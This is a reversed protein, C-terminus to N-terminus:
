NSGIIEQIAFWHKKSKELEEQPIYIRQKHYNELLSEIQRASSEYLSVCHSKKNIQDYFRFTKEPHEAACIVSKNFMCAVVGVHLKCTLVTDVINILEILEYPNDYIFHWCDVNCADRFQEFYQNEYPLISDSAVVVKYETHSQVFSTVAQSFLDLAKESHNYHVLLIKKHQSFDKILEIQKTVQSISNLDYALMMDSYNAVNNIGLDNLAKVSIDDRTTLLLSQNCIVKIPLKMILRDIPGAGVGVVLMKKKLISGLLGFPMFRVFQILTSLLKANHGEGFYGGPIYVLYDANKITINDVDCNKIYKKFYKSPEFFSVKNDPNLTKFFDFMEYAYLFDGFNSSKWNTAGHLLFRM